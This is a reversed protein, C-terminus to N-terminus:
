MYCPYRDVPYPQRDQEHDATLPLGKGWLTRFLFFTVQRTRGEEGRAGGEGGIFYFLCSRTYGSFVKLYYALYWLSFPFAVSIMIVVEANPM